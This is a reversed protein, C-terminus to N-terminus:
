CRLWLLVDRARHPAPHHGGPPVLETPNGAGCSLHGGVPLGEGRSLSVTVITVRLYDCERCLRMMFGSM